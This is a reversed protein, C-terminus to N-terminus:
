PGILGMSYLDEILARVREALQATTVTTTSFATRTATGAFNNAWGTPRAIPTAGWFAQKQTSGTGWKTGTVTGLAFNVGDAFTSSGATGLVIPKSLTLDTNRVEAILTGDLAYLSLNGAIPKLKNVLIQAGDQDVEFFRTGALTAQRVMPISVPFIPSTINIYHNHTVDYSSFTSVYHATPNTSGTGDFTNGVSRINVADNYRIGKCNSGVGFYNGQIIAGRAYLTIVSSDVGETDKEFYNGTITLGYAYLGGVGAIATQKGTALPKFYNSDIIWGRGLGVIHTARNNLFKNNIVEVSDCTDAEVIKGRVGYATGAIVNDRVSLNIAGKAYVGNVVSNPDVPNSNGITCRRISCNKTDTMNFLTGTMGAQSYKLAFDEFKFGVSRDCSIAQISGTGTFLLVTAPNQDEPAIGGMGRITISRKDALNLTSPLLITGYGLQVVGGDAPLAAIASAVTAKPKNVTQGDNTDSGFASVYVIAQTSVESSVQGEELQQLAFVKDNLNLTNLRSDTYANPDITELRDNLYSQLSFVRQLDEIAGM